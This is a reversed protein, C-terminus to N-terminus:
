WSTVGKGNGCCDGALRSFYGWCFLGLPV